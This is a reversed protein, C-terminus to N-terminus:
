TPPPARRPTPSLPPDLGLVASANAEDQNAPESAPSQNASSPGILTHCCQQLLKQMDQHKNPPSPALLPPAEEPPPPLPQLRQKVRGRRGGYIRRHKGGGTTPPAGDPDPALPPPVAEPEVQPERLLPEEKALAADGVCWPPPGECLQEALVWWAGQMERWGGGDQLLLRMVEIYGKTAAMHQPGTSPPPGSCPGPAAGARPPEVRCWCRFWSWPGPPAPSGCRSSAM